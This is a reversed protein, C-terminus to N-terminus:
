KRAQDPGAEASRPAPVAAPRDPGRDEHRKRAAAVIDSFGPHKELDSETDSQSHDRRTSEKAYELLEDTRSQFESLSWHLDGIDAPLDSLRVVMTRDMIGFHSSVFANYFYGGDQLLLCPSQFAVDAYPYPNLIMQDDALIGFCTPTGLYLHVSSPPAEWEKLYMLSEIVELAIDQKDRNEQNARLDAFAPHTLVFDTTKPLETSDRQQRSVRERLISRTAADTGGPHLLGKLSSGVVVVKQAQDLKSNFFGLAEKRNRFSKLIGAGEFFQTDSGPVEEPDAVVALNRATERSVEQDYDLLTRDIEAETAGPIYRGRM